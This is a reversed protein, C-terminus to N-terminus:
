LQQHEYSVTPRKRMEFCLLQVDARVHRLGARRQPLGLPDVQQGREGRRDGDYAAVQGGYPSGNVDALYSLITAGFGRLSTM